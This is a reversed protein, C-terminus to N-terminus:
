ERTREVNEAIRGLIELGTQPRFQSNRAHAKALGPFEAFTADIDGLTSQWSFESLLGNRYAEESNAWTNFYRRLLFAAQMEEQDTLDPNRDTLKAGLAALEPSVLFNSNLEAFLARRTNEATYAAIRNSQNIEIALVIIGAIVGINAVIQITQGLDLKKL